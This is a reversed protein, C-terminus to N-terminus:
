EESCAPFIIDKDIDEEGGYKGDAGFSILEFEDKKDRKYHNYRFPNSFPDLPITDLYSSDSYNPYKQPNPNTILAELGEKTTPYVGNDLKFMRLEEKIYGMQTCTLKPATNGCM